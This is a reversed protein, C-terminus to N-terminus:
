PRQMKCSDQVPYIIDKGPMKAVVELGMRTNDLPFRVKESIKSVVIPLILQHDEKRIALDGMESKFTASELATAIAKVDVAGGNTSANKLASHLYRLVTVTHAGYSVPYAGTAKKYDEKMSTNDAENNFTTAVYGGMLADGAAAINGPQDFYMGGFVAKLGAEKSAKVLLVLDNGWNATIVSTPKADVIRAVYPSFDQIRAVDHLVKGVVTYGLKPANATTAADMEQGLAYNMNVAYVRDGLVNAQKMVGLLANARITATSTLRFSYFHCKSGTLDSAEAGVNLFMMPAQANRLNHRRVDEQLQGAIASSAAQVVIHAGAAQAEKFRDSAASTTGANDLVILEIPAGNFGGQANMQNVAYRTSMEYIKGTAAQAGTLTEILAIKLPAATATSSFSLSVALSVASLAFVNGFRAM